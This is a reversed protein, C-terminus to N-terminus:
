DRIEVRKAFTFPLPPALVWLFFVFSYLFTLNHPWLSRTLQPYYSLPIPPCVGYQRTFKVRDLQSLLASIVEKSVGISEMILIELRPTLPTEKPPDDLQYAITPLNRSVESAELRPAWGERYAMKQKSELSTEASPEIKSDTNVVPHTRSGAQHGGIKSELRYVRRGSGLQFVPHSRVLRRYINNPSTNKFFPNSGEWKSGLVRFLAQAHDNLVLTAISKLSDM